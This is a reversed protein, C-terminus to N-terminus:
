EDGVAHLNATKRRTLGETEAIKQVVNRNINHKDAIDDYTYRFKNSGPFRKEGLDEKVHMKLHEDFKAQSEQADRKLKAIEEDHKDLRDGNSGRTRAM